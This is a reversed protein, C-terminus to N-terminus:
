SLACVQAVPPPMGGSPVRQLQSQGASSSAVRQLQPQQMQAQAAQQAAQQASTCAKRTLALQEPTLTLVEAEPEVHLYGDKFSPTMLWRESNLRADVRDYHDPPTGEERLGKTLFQTPTYPGTMEDVARGVLATIFRASESAPKKLCAFTASFMAVTVDKRM